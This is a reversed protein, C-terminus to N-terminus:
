LNKRKRLIPKQVTGADLLQRQKRMSFDAFLKILSLKQFPGALQLLFFSSKPPKMYSRYSM